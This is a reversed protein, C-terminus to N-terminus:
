RSIDPPLVKLNKYESKDAAAPMALCILIPPFRM